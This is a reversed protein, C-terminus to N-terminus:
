RESRRKRMKQSLRPGIYFHVLGCSISPSDGKTNEIISMFGNARLGGVNMRPLFRRNCAPTPFAFLRRTKKGPMGVPTSEGSEGKQKDGKRSATKFCFPSVAGTLSGQPLLLSSVNGM